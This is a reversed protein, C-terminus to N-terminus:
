YVSGKMVYFFVYVRHSSPTRGSVLETEGPPPSKFFAFIIGGVTTLLVILAVIFYLNGILKNM